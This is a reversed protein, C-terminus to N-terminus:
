KAYNLMSVKNGSVSKKDKELQDLCEKVIDYTPKQSISKSKKDSEKLDSLTKFMSSVYLEKLYAYSMKNKVCTKAVTKIQASTLCTKFWHTIYDVTMKEDPLGIEFKRDFRSPRDLISSKFKSVDNATAVIFFGNASNIGDLLNLFGSMDIAGSAIMSDLDEIYLLAPSQTQAYSFAERLADFNSGPAITVPKFNYKAMITKIISTKGTGPPGMLLMGRKWPIKSDIYFQKNNLFVEVTSIIDEKTKEDLYVDDWTYEKSYKIPESGVVNILHNDHDKELLWAEYDAKFKMYADLKSARTLVCFSIEDENNVGRQFLSSLVFSADGHSIHFIGTLLFRDEILSQNWSTYSHTFLSEVKVSKEKMFDLFKNDIVIKNHALAVIDDPSTEASAELVSKTSDSELLLRVHDSYSEISFAFQKYDVGNSSKPILKLVKESLKNKEM